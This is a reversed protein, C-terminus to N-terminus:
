NLFDTQKEFLVPVMFNALLFTVLGRNEFKSEAYTTMQCTPNKSLWAVEHLKIYMKKGLGLRISFKPAVPQVSRDSRHHNLVAM